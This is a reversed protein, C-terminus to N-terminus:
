SYPLAPTNPQTERRGEQPQRHTPQQQQRWPQTIKNQDKCCFCFIYHYDDGVSHADWTASAPVRSFSACPLYPSTSWTRSPRQRDHDQAARCGDTRATRPCPYQGGSTNCCKTMITPLVLATRPSTSLSSDTDILFPMVALASTATTSHTRAPGFKLRHLCLVMEASTPTHKMTRWLRRSRRLVTDMGVDYNSFM